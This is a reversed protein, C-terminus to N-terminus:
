TVASVGVLGVIVGTLCAYVLWKAFAGCTELTARVRAPLQPM